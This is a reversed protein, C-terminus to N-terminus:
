RAEAIVVVSQSSQNQASVAQQTGKANFSVGMDPGKLERLAYVDGAGLNFILVTSSGHSTEDPSGLLFSRKGTENQGITVLRSEENVLITYEGAPLLHGGAYFSFPINARLMPADDQALAAGSLAMTFLALAVLKLLNKM